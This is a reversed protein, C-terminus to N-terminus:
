IFSITLVTKPNEGYFKRADGEVIRSDKNIVIGQLCDEYLKLMNTRDPPGVPRIYHDLMLARKIKSASKPIPMFFEADVRIAQDLILGKYQSAIILRIKKSDRYHPSFTGKRTVKPSKWPVPVGPIIIEIM